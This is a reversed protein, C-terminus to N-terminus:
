RCTEVLTSNEVDTTSSGWRVVVDKLTVPSEPFTVYKQRTLPVLLEPVPAYESTHFKVVPAGGGGGGAGTKAVGALPAVPTAVFGVNV